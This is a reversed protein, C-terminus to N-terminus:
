DAPVRVAGENICVAKPLGTTGSTFSLFACIESSRKGPLISSVSAQTMGSGRQVLDAVCEQGIERDLRIIHTRRIRLREAATRTAYASSKDAFILVSKSIKLAYELEEPGYAPSLATVVAGLRLAAFVVVPYWISNECAVAVNSGRKLNYSGALVTSLQTAYDKLTDFSINDGTQADYFAGLEAKPVNRLPSLRDDFLWDWISAEMPVIHTAMNAVINSWTEGRPARGPIDLPLGHFPM